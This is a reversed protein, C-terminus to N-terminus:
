FTNLLLVTIISFLGISLKHAMGEFTSISQFTSTNSSETASSTYAPTTTHGGSVTSFRLDSKTGHIAVIENTSVTLASSETKIDSEGSLHTKELSNTIFAKSESFVKGTEESITTSIRVDTKTHSDTVSGSKINASDTQEYSFESIASTYDLATTSSTLPCYTLFSIIQGNITQTVVTLGTTALASSCIDDLCSTITVLTSSADHATFTSTLLNELETSDITPPVDFTSYNSITPFVSGTSKSISTGYRSTKSIYIENPKSTPSSFNETLKSISLSSDQISSATVKVSIPISLTNGESPSSNTAGGTLQAAAVSTSTSLVGSNSLTNNNFRTFSSLHVASSSDVSITSSVISNSITTKSSSSIYPITGLVSSSSTLPTSTYSVDSISSVISNSSIIFGSSISALLSSVPSTYSPNSVTTQTVFTQTERKVLSTGGIVVEVSATVTLDKENGIPQGNALFRLQGGSSPNHDTTAEAHHDSVNLFLPVLLYYSDFIDLLAMDVEPSNLSTDVLSWPGLSEPVFVSISIGQSLVNVLLIPSVSSSPLATQIDSKTAIIDTSSTSLSRTQSDSSKLSDSLSVSSSTITASSTTLSSIAQSNSSKSLSSYPSIVISTSSSAQTVSSSLPQTYAPNSLTSIITYTASSSDSSTIEVLGTVVISKPNGEPAANAIFQLSQGSSPYVDIFEYTPNSNADSFSVAIVPSGALQPTPRSVAASEGYLVVGMISWPALSEPISFTLRFGLAYSIASLSPTETSKSTVSSISSSVYNSASSIDSHSSTPAISRSSGTSSIYSSQIVFSSSGVSISIGTSLSSSALISSSSSTPTSYNPNSVTTQTVFTQTARKVLSTGGIVVEVSATVTLDKENGIPQGNVLFRLQGGSSPNHDTTAEIYNETIQHSLPSLLTYSDFIDILTMDVNPSSVSTDILSWPGMTEPVFISISVGYSLAVVLLIPEVSSSPLTTPISSTSAVIETSTTQATPKGFSLTATWFIALFQNINVM